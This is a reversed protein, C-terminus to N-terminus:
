VLKDYPTDQVIQQRIWDRFVWLGKQGLNESNCQLLDAWKNAWFDVYDKSAILEDILKERKEKSPTKDELFARVREVKPPLGTLDLHVRRIFEADTCLESPLIKMKKLKAQVHKDIFNNEPVDAWEFGTRDGMVTVLQSAYLGEYRILTCTEGRRIGTMLGDKVQAVDGNSTSF